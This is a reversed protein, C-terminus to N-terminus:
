RPPAFQGPVGAQNSPTTPPEVGFGLRVKENGRALTVASADIQVVSWGGRTKEGQTVTQQIGGSFGLTAKLKGDVGEIGRIVPVEASNSSASGSTAADLRNIEAQKTAIQLKLDLEKQQASLVAINENIRSIQEAVNEAALASGAWISALMAVIVKKRNYM